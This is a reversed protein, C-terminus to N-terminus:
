RSQWKRFIDVAWFPIISKILTKLFAKVIWIRPFDLMRFGIRTTKFANWRVSFTRRRVANQDERVCYLAKQINYGNFEHYYFKFWLDYDQARKTREAVTYGEVVEYVYRYTMITAHCFPLGTRLSYRDPCEVAKVIDAVGKDNFRQMWSGVLQYDPHSRLFAVQEEFRTPESRDDGDMRAVFEGTAYELCHNLTAALRMNRENRILVIKDPYRKKYTTAVSYTSDTSDDDCMILEWDEYTQAIISEIAESLTNACNYIGMIVSVKGSCYEM